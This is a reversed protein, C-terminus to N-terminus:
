NLTHPEDPRTALVELVYGSAATLSRSTLLFALLTAAASQVAKLAAGRWLPRWSAHGRKQAAAAAAASLYQLALAPRRRSRRDGVADIGCLSRISAFARTSYAGVM